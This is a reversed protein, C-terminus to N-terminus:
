STRGTRRRAPRPQGCGTQSADPRAWYRRFRCRKRAAPNNIGTRQPVLVRGRSVMAAVRRSALWARSRPGSAASAYGHRVDLAPPPGPDDRM